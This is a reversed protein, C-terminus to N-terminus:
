AVRGTSGSTAEGAVVLIIWLIGAALRRPGSACRCTQPYEYASGIAELAFKKNSAATDIRSVPAKEIQVAVCLEHACDGWQGDTLQRYPGVNIGNMFQVEVPPVVAFVHLFAHANKPETACSSKMRDDTARSRIQRQVVGVAHLGKSALCILLRKRSLGIPGVSIKRPHALGLTADAIQDDIDALPLTTRQCQEDDIVVAQLRSLDPAMELGHDLTIM